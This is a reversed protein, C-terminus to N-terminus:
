VTISVFRDGIKLKGDIDQFPDCGSRDYTEVSVDNLCVGILCTEEIYSIKLPLDEANNEKSWQYLEKVTM